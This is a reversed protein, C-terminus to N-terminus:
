DFRSGNLLTRLVDQPLGPGLQAVVRESGANSPMDVSAGTQAQVARLVELLTSNQADITLEGNQLRVQPPNPPLQEPTPPTPPTM